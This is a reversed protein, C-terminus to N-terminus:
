RATANGNVVKRLQVDITCIHDILWEEMVTRLEFVEIASTEGDRVWSEIESLNGLFEAHATFNESQVPCDYRQMCAEEFSFHMHTYQALFTLTSQLAAAGKHSIVAADFENFRRIWEKHQEDIEAIGTTMKEYNWNITM